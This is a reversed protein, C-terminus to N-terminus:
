FAMLVCGVYGLSKVSLCQSRIAGKMGGGFALPRGRSTSIRSTIFPIMYRSRLPHEQRISGFLKGGQLM